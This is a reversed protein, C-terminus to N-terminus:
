GQSNRPVSRPSENHRKVKGSIFYKELQHKEFFATESPVSDYLVDWWRSFVRRSPCPIHRCTQGPGLLGSAFPCINIKSTTEQQLSDFGFKGALFFGFDDISDLSTWWDPIDYRM